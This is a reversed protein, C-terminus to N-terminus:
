RMVSSHSRRLSVCAAVSCLCISSLYPNKTALGQRRKRHIYLLASSAMLLYTILIGWESLTPVTPLTTVAGFTLAYSNSLSTIGVTTADGTTTNITDLAMTQFGYLANTNADFGLGVIRSIGNPGVLTEAGSTTDVTYLETFGGNFACM